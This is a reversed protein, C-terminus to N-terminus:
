NNVTTTTSVSGTTKTAPKTTKVPVVPQSIATILNKADKNNPDLELMKNSYLLTNDKDDKMYYYFAEYQYINLMDKRYLDISKGGEINKQIIALAREYHPKALGASADRDMESNAHGRWLSGIYSEPAKVSVAGFATDAKILYEKALAKGQETSDARLGRGAYYWSRGMNYYDAPETFDEGSMDIYKQYTEASKVYDSMKYYLAALEKYTESKAANTALVKDYQILAETNKGADALITAYTAYDKDIYNGNLKFFKDAYTVGNNVDKTKAAIYMRLRNFVFKNSDQALGKDLLVTAKDIQDTFYYASALRFIDDFACNGDGYFKEFADIALKYKGVSNYARALNRVIIDFGPNAQLLPELKEVALSYSNQSSEYIQAEKLTAVVNGPDFYQAQAYMKAAEGVKDEATLIDGELIYLASSKKVVKRAKILQATMKETLGNEFYARVVSANADPDKKYTKKLATVFLAEAEAPKSKLLVKGKGILNFAYAPNAKIGKEFYSLAEDNKGEKWAIEGLFYNAEAPSETLKSEFYAKAKPYEGMAYYDKGFDSKAFASVVLLAMLITLLNKKM